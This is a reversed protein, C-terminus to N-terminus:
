KPSTATTNVPSGQFDYQGSEQRLPHKTAHHAQYSPETAAGYPRLSLIPSYRPLRGGCDLIRGTLREGRAPIMSDAHLRCVVGVFHLKATEDLLIAMKRDVVRCDDVREDQPARARDKLPPHGPVKLKTQHRIEPVARENEE